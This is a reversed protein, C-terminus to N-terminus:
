AKVKEAVEKAVSELDMWYLRESYAEHLQIAIDLMDDDDINLAQQETLNFQEKIDARFLCRVPFPDKLAEKQDKTLEM